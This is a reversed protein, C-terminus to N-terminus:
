KHMPVVIQLGAIPAYEFTTEGNTEKSTGIMPTITYISGDQVPDMYFWTDEIYKSDPKPTRAQDSSRGSSLSPAIAITHGQEDKFQYQILQSNQMLSRHLEYPIQLRLHLEYVTESTRLRVAEFRHEDYEALKPEGWNVTHSTDTGRVPIVFNWNGKKIDYLSSDTQQIGITPVNVELMFSEPLKQKVYYKVIGIKYDEWSIVNDFKYTPGLLKKSAAALQFNPFITQVPAPEGNALRFSYTFSLQIGDFLAEHIQLVYGNNATEALVPLEAQEGSGNTKAKNKVAESGLKGFISTLVPKMSQVTQPKVVAWVSASLLIAIAGISLRRFRRAALSTRRRRRRSRILADSEQSPSSLPPLAALTEDIRARVLEPIPAENSSGPEGRLLKRIRYDTMDIKM